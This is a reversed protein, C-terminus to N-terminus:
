GMAELLVAGDTVALTLTFTSVSPDSPTLVLSVFLRRGAAVGSSTVNVQADDVRDDKTVEARILGALDRLDSLTVGKNAYGRIDLGYDPDDIMSGRPTTIRRISAQAIAEQSFPDVEELTETVDDICSLDTGFGLDGSPSPTLAEIFQGDGVTGPLAAIQEAMSDLVLTM